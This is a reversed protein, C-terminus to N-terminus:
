LTKRRWFSLFPWGRPQGKEVALFVLDSGKPKSAIQEDSLM